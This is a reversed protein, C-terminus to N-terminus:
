REWLAKSGSYYWRAPKSRRDLHLFHRGLGIGTFGRQEAAALLAFRDHWALAIDVAIQRHMSHAAGGVHTNWLACRHGSNIVLPQGVAARLAELADLFEPDHWYEGGCLRGGCKCSLERPSFHPWRWGSTDFLTFSRILM